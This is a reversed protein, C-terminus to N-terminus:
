SAGKRRSEVSEIVRRTTEVTARIIHELTQRGKEPSADAPDGTYTLKSIRPLPDYLLADLPIVQPNAAFKEPHVLEPRLHWIM